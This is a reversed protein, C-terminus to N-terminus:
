ILTENIQSSYKTHLVTCSFRTGCGKACDTFFDLETGSFFLEFSVVAEEDDDDDIVTISTAVSFILCKDRSRFDWNEEFCSLWIAEQNSLFRRTKRRITWYFDGLWSRIKQRSVELKHFKFKAVRPCFRSPQACSIHRLM